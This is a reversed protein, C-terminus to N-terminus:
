QCLESITYFEKGSVCLNLINRLFRSTLVYNQKWLILVDDDLDYYNLINQIIYTHLYSEIQIERRDKSEQSLTSSSKKVDRMM